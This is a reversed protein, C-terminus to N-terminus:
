SSACNWEKLMNYNRRRKEQSMLTVHLPVKQVFTWTAAFSCKNCSFIHGEANNYEYDKEGERAM